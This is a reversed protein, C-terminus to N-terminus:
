DTPQEATQLIEPPTYNEDHKALVENARLQGQADLKVKAIAAEGESFLDPLIGAYIVVVEHQGDTLRFTVDLGDGTRQVSDRVVYGGVRIQRDVPAQGDAIAAPSYFHNLNGRMAYVVLGVGLTSFVAIFLVIVLRKKRPAPMVM